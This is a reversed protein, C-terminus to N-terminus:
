QQVQNVHQTSERERILYAFWRQWVDDHSVSREPYLYKVEKPYSNTSSSHEDRLLQILM